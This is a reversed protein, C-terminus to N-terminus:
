YIEKDQFRRGDVLYVICFIFCIKALLINLKHVGPLHREIRTKTVSYQKSFHFHFHIPM